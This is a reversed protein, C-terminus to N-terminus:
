RGGRVFRLLASGKASSSLMQRQKKRRALARDSGSELAKSFLCLAPPHHLHRYLVGLDDGRLGAHRCRARALQSAGAAVVLPHFGLIFAFYTM